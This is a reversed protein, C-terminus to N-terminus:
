KDKKKIIFEKYVKWPIKEYSYQDHTLPSGIKVTKLKHM